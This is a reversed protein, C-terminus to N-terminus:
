SSLFLDFAETPIEMWSEGTVTDRYMTFLGEFKEASETVENISMVDSKGSKKDGQFETKKKKKFLQAEAKQPTLATFAIVLTALM